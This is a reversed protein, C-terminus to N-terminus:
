VHSPSSRPPARCGLLRVTILALPCSELSILAAYCAEAVAPARPETANDVFVLRNVIEDGDPKENNEIRVVGTSDFDMEALRREAFTLLVLACFLVTLRMRQRRRRSSAEMGYLQLAHRRGVGVRRIERGQFRIQGSVNGSIVCAPLRGVFNTV